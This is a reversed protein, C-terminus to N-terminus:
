QGLIGWRTWVHLFVCCVGGEHHISAKTTSEGNTNGETQKRKCLMTRVLSETYYWRTKAMYTNVIPPMISGGYSSHACEYKDKM